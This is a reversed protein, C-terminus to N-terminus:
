AGSSVPSTSTIPSTPWTAATPSSSCRGQHLRDHLLGPRHGAGPGARGLAGDVTLSDIMVPVPGDAASPVVVHGNAFGMKASAKTYAAVWASRASHSAANWTALSSTLPQSPPLSELPKIVFDQTTNLPIRVGIWKALTLPGIQQGTAAHNYPPGYGATGSTGNLESLATTAFDVPM